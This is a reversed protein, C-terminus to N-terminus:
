EEFSIYFSTGNKNTSKITGNVQATLATILTIGLSDPQELIKEADFGIGNDSVMMTFKGGMKTCVIKIEGETRGRFAHKYANSILENLILGCPVANKIDVFIEKCSVSCNIKADTPNYSSSIYNILDNCYANFDIRAFTEHQYLKDHILAMSHIRNRSEEFLSRSHEDKVYSSQLGLLGSIVAMNNKVRHHIESLLIEKELLSAEVHAKTKKELTIDTIRVSQYKENGILVLKIVLAGWFETGKKTKYLVEGEYFGHINLLNRMMKLESDSPMEKHLDLGYLDHFEDESDMCFLDMARQNAKIIKRKRWDVLFLADFSNEFIAQLQQQLLENSEDLKKESREFNTIFFYIVFVEALIATVNFIVRMKVLLEPPLIVSFSSSFNLLYLITFTCIAIIVLFCITRIQKLDFLVLPIAAAPIFLLHMQSREGLCLCLAFLHIYLGTIFLFRALHHLKMYALCLVFFYTLLGSMEIKVANPLDWSFFVISYILTFTFAVTVLQNTLKIRKAVSIGTTNQLGINSITDWAKKLM